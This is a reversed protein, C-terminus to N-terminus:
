INKSNFVAILFLSPYAPFPNTKPKNKIQGKGFKM